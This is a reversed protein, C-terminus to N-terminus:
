TPTCTVQLFPRVTHNHMPEDIRAIDVVGYPGLERRISDEDYFYLRVGPGIEYWDEGVKTGQGYSDFQKSILTFVMLGGPRLQRACDSLLKARGAADLLYLLGYCFIGDHTRDDFPMDTVSGHHIPLDLHLKERAFTIATASIEIGTVSMGRDLFPRANRGYGIGPILVSTVGRRAFLESAVLASATPEIGWMMQHKTFTSEWVETM